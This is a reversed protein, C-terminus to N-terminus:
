MGIWHTTLTFSLVFMGVCMTTIAFVYALKELTDITKNMM